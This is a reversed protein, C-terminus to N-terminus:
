PILATLSRIPSENPPLISFTQRQEREPRQAWEVLSEQQAKEEIYSLVGHDIKKLTKLRSPILNM